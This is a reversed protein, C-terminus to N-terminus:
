VHKIEIVSDTLWQWRVGYQKIVDGFEDPTMGKGTPRAWALGVKDTLYVGEPALMSFVNRLYDQLHKWCCAHATPTTDIIVSYHWSTLFAPSHKDCLLPIFNHWKPATDIEEQCVTIGVMTGIQPAFIRELSSNGIGIHLWKADPWVYQPLVAEIRKQDESTPMHTWNDDTYLVRPPECGCYSIV